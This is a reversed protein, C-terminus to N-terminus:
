LVSLFEEEAFDGQSYYKSLIFTHVASTLDKPLRYFSAAQRLRQMQTMLWTYDVAIEHLLVTVCHCCSSDCHDVHLARARRGDEACSLGLWALALAM